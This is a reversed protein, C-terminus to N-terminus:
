LEESREFLYAIHNRRAWAEMFDEYRYRVHAADDVPFAPDMCLVESNAPDYGTVVLLHGKSYPEASGPLPGRVSVVVPIGTELRRHIADFDDLYSVWCRWPDGLEMYAQAVNLIWNGYILFYHDHVKDAFQLISMDRAGSLYRVVSLTSTPSCLREKVEDPQTMQSLGSVPLSVAKWSKKKPPGRMSKDTTTVHLARFRGLPAGDVSLVLVRFASARKGELVSVCDQYVRMPFEQVEQQTTFQNNSGWLAYFAWPSWVGDVQLSVYLQFAGQEPRQANWSILLEDFGGGVAQAWEYHDGESSALEHHHVTSVNGFVSTAMLMGIFIIRRLM